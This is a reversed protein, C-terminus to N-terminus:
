DVVGHFSSYRTQTKDLCFYLMNWVEFSLNVLDSLKTKCLNSPRSFSTQNGKLVHQIMGLAWRLGAEQMEHPRQVDTGKFMGLYSISDAKLSLRISPSCTVSFMHCWDGMPKIRLPQAGLMLTSSVRHMYLSWCPIKVSENVWIKLSGKRQPAWPPPCPEKGGYQGWFLGTLYTLSLPLSQCLTVRSAEHSPPSKFRSRGLKLASRFWQVM